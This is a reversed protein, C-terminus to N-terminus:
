LGGCYTFSVNLHALELLLFSMRVLFTRDKRPVLALPKSNSAAQPPPAAGADLAGAGADLAAADLAAAEALGEAAADALGEAAADLAALPPALPDAAAL